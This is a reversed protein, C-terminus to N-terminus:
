ENGAKSKANSDAHQDANSSGGSVDGGAISVPANANVANQKSVGIALAGQETNAAQLGLQAAGAGGCGLKCSSNGGVTQTQTQDQTTAAKATLRQTPPRASISSAFGVLRRM